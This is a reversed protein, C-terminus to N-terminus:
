HHLRTIPTGQSTRQKVAEVMRSSFDQYTKVVPMVGPAVIDCCTGCTAALKQVDEFVIRNFNDKAYNANLYTILSL